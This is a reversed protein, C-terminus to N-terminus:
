GLKAAKAREQKELRVYARRKNFYRAAVEPTKIKALRAVEERSLGQGEMHQM